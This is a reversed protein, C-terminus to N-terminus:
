TMPKKRFAPTFNSKPTPFCVLACSSTIGIFSKYAMHRLICRITIIGSSTIPTSPGCCITDVMSRSGRRTALYPRLLELLRKRAPIPAM